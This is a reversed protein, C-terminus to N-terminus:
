LLLFIGCFDSNVILFLPKLDKFELTKISSAYDKSFNYGIGLYNAVETVFEIYEDNSMKLDDMSSSISNFLDAYKEKYNSNFVGNIYVKNLGNNVYVGLVDEYSESPYKKPYYRKLSDAVYDSIFIGYDKINEEDVPIGPSIGDLVCGVSTGHSEGFITLSINNGFTNKM